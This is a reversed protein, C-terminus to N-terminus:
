LIECDRGVSGDQLRVKIEHPHVASYILYDNISINNEKSIKELKEYVSDEIEITVETTDESKIFEKRKEILDKDVKIDFM